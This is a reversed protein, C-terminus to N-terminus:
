GAIKSKVKSDPKISRPITDIAGRSKGRSEGKGGSSKGECMSGSGEGESVNSKGKRVSNGGKSGEDMSGSIDGM